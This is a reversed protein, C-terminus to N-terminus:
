KVESAILPFLEAFNPEQIVSPLDSRSKAVTSETRTTLLLRKQKVDNGEKIEKVYLYYVEDLLGGVENKFQGSFSPSTNRKGQKTQDTKALATFITNIPLDRFARVFRRMTKLSQRYEEWGEKEDDGQKEKDEMIWMMNLYQIESLSDLVVTRYDYAGSLLADYVNQIEPWTRPSVVEVNPYRKRLSKTGGEIDVLLVKRMMPSDDASGCLVTKGAGYDGYIMVSCTPELEKVKGIQLGGLSSPTLLDAPV